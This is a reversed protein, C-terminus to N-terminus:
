GGTPFVSCWWSVLAAALASKGVGNGSKVALRRNSVFAEAIESQRSWLRVGLLDAMWAEPDSQYVRARSKEQMEAVALSAVGSFVLSGMLM